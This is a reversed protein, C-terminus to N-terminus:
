FFDEFSIGKEWENLNTCHGSETSCLVRYSRLCLLQVDLSFVSFTSCKSSFVSFLAMSEKGTRSCHWSSPQESIVYSMKKWKLSCVWTKGSKNKGFHIGRFNKHYSNELKEFFSFFSFMIITPSKISDAQWRSPVSFAKVSYTWM